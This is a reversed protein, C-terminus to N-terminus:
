WGFSNNQELEEERKWCVDCHVCVGDNFIM